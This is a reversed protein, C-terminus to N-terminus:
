SRRKRNSSRRKEVKKTNSVKDKNGTTAPKRLISNNINRRETTVKRRSNTDVPKRKTTNTNRRETTVKRDSNVTTPRRYSNSNQRNRTVTRKSNTTAPKRRRLIQSRKGIKANKNARYYFYNRDERIQSYNRRFDNGFFYTDNYNCVDGINLNIRIGNNYFFNNRVNGYFLPDGFRNYRVSLNGVNTLRGRYYRMFVNGIRTVNGFRDYNVFASGIRSVRGRFDRDIRIGSSRRVRRGNYDLYTNNYNTDFDFEGNTFIFFEVGREIFNVANNYSDYFGIRNSLENSNKAEVTSVMVFIGLLLLLGRKM